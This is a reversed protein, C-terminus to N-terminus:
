LLLCATAALHFLRGRIEHRSWNRDNWEGSMDDGAYLIQALEVDRFQAVAFFAAAEMEVTICGESVRLEVKARTERYFADTTWTKGLVYRHGAAALTREIAAVAGSGPRVERDAPLYHYSTGEDRIASSPVIIQGVSLNGDLVGAGGCVIFKRCGLAIVEELLGVCLSAGVGPHFFALRRREFEIEFVPHVGMASSRHSVQRAGRSRLEDIVDQFFCIVCHPAIDIPMVQRSPEIVAERASDFELLPYPQPIM